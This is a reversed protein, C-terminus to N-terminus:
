KRDLIYRRTFEHIKKIFINKGKDGFAKNNPEINGNEDDHIESKSICIITKLPNGDIHFLFYYSM